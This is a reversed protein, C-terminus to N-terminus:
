LPELELVPAAGAAGAAANAGANAGAAAGAAGVAAQISDSSDDVRASRDSSDDVRSWGDGFAALLFAVEIGPVLSAYKNACAKKLLQQQLTCIHTAAAQMNQIHSGIM